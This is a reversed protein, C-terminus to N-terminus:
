MFADSPGLEGWYVCRGTSEGGGALGPHWENESALLTGPIQGLVLPAWLCGPRKLPWALTNARHGLLWPRWTEPQTTPPLSM